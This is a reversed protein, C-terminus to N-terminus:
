KRPATRFLGAPLTEGALFAVVNRATMTSVALRADLTVGAIHPTVLVNPLSWFPHDTAPPENAFSDLGAGAIKGDRLAALLAPEDVVEGRATNILLASPQMRALM